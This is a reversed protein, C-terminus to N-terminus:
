VYTKEQKLDFHLLPEHPDFALAAALFLTPCREWFGRLKGLPANAPHSRGLWQKAKFRATRGPDGGVKKIM